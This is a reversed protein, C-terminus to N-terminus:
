EKFLRITYALLEAGGPNGHGPVVISVEPFQDKIRQVTASWASTNADGLFGKTANVSKILCGGFLAKESPIYGVINDRTHGEGFFSLYVTQGGIDVQKEDDFGITPLQSQENSKLIEITRNNSISQVGLNHFAAIGGLCDEHFHTVVVAKIRKRKEKQIWNILELSAKEDTPTDFVIAESKSIYIMGNCAVKGFDNTQLYSVHVFVQSNIEVIQLNDSQYSISTDEKISSSTTMPEAAQDVVSALKKVCSSLGVLSVIMLGAVRKKMRNIKIVPLPGRLRRCYPSKIAM